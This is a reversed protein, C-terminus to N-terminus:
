DCPSRLHRPDSGVVRYYEGGVSGVEVENTKLAYDKVRGRQIREACILGTPAWFFIKAHGQAPGTQPSAFRM